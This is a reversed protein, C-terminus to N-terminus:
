LFITPTIATLEEFVENRDMVMSNSAMSRKNDVLLLSREGVGFCDSNIYPGCDKLYNKVMALFSTYFPIM